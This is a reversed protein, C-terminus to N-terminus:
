WLIGYLRDCKLQIPVKWCNENDFVGIFQGVVQKATCVHEGNQWVSKCKKIKKQNIWLFGWPFCRRGM